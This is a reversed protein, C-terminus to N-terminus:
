AWSAVGAGWILTSTGTKATGTRVWSVALASLFATSLTELAQTRAVTTPSRRARLRPRAWSLHQPCRPPSSASLLDRDKGRKRDSKWSVLYIKLFFFGSVKITWTNDIFDHFVEKYILLLWWNFIKLWYVGKGNGETYVM